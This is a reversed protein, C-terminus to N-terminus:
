IYVLATIYVLGVTLQQEYRVFAFAVAFLCIENLFEIKVIKFIIDAFDAKIAIKYSHFFLFSVSKSLSFDSKCGEVWM